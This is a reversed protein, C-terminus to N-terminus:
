KAPMVELLLAGTYTIDVTDGAKVNDLSKADQVRFSVIGGDPKKVTVSRNKADVTQITVSVTEQAAITASPSAGKGRAITAGSPPAPDGPKRVNVVLSEYYTATVKDGVKLEDFRRVDKGAYVTALNGKPGKLTVTRASHDIAEITATITVPAIAPDGAPQPASAEARRDSAALVGIAIALLTSLCRCSM